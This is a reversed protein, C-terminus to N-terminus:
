TQLAQVPDVSDSNTTIVECDNTTKETHMPSTPAADKVPNPTLPTATPPAQGEAM